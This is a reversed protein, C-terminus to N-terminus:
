LFVDWIEAIECYLSKNHRQDIGYPPGPEVGRKFMRRDKLMLNCESVIEQNFYRIGNSLELPLMAYGCNM